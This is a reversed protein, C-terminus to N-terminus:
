GDGARDEGCEHGGTADSRLYRVRKPPETDASAHLGGYDDDEDGCAAFLAAAFVTGAVIAAQARSRRRRFTPASFRRLQDASGDLAVDPQTSM